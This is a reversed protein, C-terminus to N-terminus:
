IVKSRVSIDMLYNSRGKLWQIETRTLLAPNANNRKM